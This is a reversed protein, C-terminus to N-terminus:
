SSKEEDTERIRKQKYAEDILRAICEQCVPEGDHQSPYPATDMYFVASDYRDCLICKRWNPQCNTNTCKEQHPSYINHCKPCEWGMQPTNVSFVPADNPCYHFGTYRQGCRGCYYWQYYDGAM